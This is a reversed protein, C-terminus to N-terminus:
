HIIKRLEALIKSSLPKKELVIDIIDDYAEDEQRPRKTSPQAPGGQSDPFLDHINMTFYNHM